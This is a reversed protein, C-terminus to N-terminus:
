SGFRDNFIEVSSQKSLIPLLCVSKEIWVALFSPGQLLERLQCTGVNAIEAKHWFIDM